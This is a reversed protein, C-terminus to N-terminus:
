ENAAFESAAVQLQLNLSLDINLQQFHKITSPSRQSVIELSPLEVSSRSEMIIALKSVSKM